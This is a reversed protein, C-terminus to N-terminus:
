QGQVSNAALFLLLPFFAGFYGKLIQLAFNSAGKVYPGVWSDRSVTKRGGLSNGNSLTLRADVFSLIKIMAEDIAKYRGQYQIDAHFNFDSPDIM